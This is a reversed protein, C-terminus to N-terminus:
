PQAVSVVVAPREFRADAAAAADLIVTAAAAPRHQGLLSPLAAMPLAEAVRRYCLVLRDGDALPRPGIVEAAYPAGNQATVGLARCLIDRHAFTAAQEETLQGAEILQAVLSHPRTLTEVEGDRVLLVPGDGLWGVYLARHHVYVLAAVCSSGLDDPPEGPHLLNMKLGALQMADDLRQAVDGSGAHILEVMAAAAVRSGRHGDGWDGTGDCLAIALGGDGGAIAFPEGAVAFQGHRLEAAITLRLGAPTTHALEARYTSPTM